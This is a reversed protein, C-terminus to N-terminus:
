LNKGYKDYNWFGVSDPKWGDVFMRLECEQNGKSDYLYAQLEGNETKSIRIKKNKDDKVQEHNYRIKGLLLPTTIESHDKVKFNRGYRPRKYEDDMNYDLPEELYEINLPIYLYGDEGSYPLAQVNYDRYREEYNTQILRIDDKACKKIENQYEKVWASLHDLPLKPPFLRPASADNIIELLKMPPNMTIKKQSKTPENCKFYNYEVFGDWPTTLLDQTDKKYEEDTLDYTDFLPQIEFDADEWSAGEEIVEVTYIRLGEGDNTRLPVMVLRHYGPESIITAPIGNENLFWHILQAWQTCNISGSLSRDLEKHIGPCIYNKTQKKHLISRGIKYWTGKAGKKIKEQRAGEGLGIAYFIDKKNETLLTEMQKKTMIKSLPIDGWPVEKAETIYYLLSQTIDVHYKKMTKLEQCTKEMASLFGDNSLGIGIAAMLAALLKKRKNM